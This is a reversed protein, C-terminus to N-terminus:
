LNNFQFSTTLGHMRIVNQSDLAVPTRFHVINNIGGGPLQLARDFQAETEARVFNDVNAVVPEAALAPLNLFCTM